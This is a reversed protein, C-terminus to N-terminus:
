VFQELLDATAPMNNKRLIRARAIPPASLLEGAVEPNLKGGPRLDYVDKAIDNIEKQIDDMEARKEAPTMTDDLQIQRQEKKLDTVQQSAKKFDDAVDLLQPYKDELEKVRADGEDSEANEAKKISAQVKAAEDALKYMEIIHRTNRAPGTRYFDRLGPIDQIAKEPAPPEGNAKRVLADSVTLVYDQINGIYGRGLHELQKPSRLAEPADDPMLQALERYTASTQPGFQDAPLVGQDGQTLIPSGTFTDQNIALEVMPWVTAPQPALNLTEGFSYGVLKAAQKVADPEDANTLMADGIAEPVTGFITGVEFPKPLKYHGDGIFFHWYNSKEQDTLAKYRDDDYNMALLAISAAAILMGRLGVSVFSQRTGRGLRYLGQLRANFFPTMGIILRVIEANGRMSFDMTDRAQYLANRRSLGAKMGKKFIAVRNANEAANQLMRYFRWVKVPTNLLIGRSKTKAISRRISGAMQSPDGSEVFSEGFGGGGAVMSKYEPSNALASALGALSDSPLMNIRTKDSQAGTVFTHWMDRWFNKVMFQPTMTITKTVVRKPFSFLKMWPGWLKPNINKLSRFLNPDHVHWFERKGGRWVTIIDEGAPPAIGLMKQLGAMAAPPMTAVNIGANQLAAAMNPNAKLLANLNQIPAGVAFKDPTVLGTGNLNDITMRGAVAQLSADMLAQWNRVINELPDGINQRGGKLQKIQNRIFGIGKGAKNSITVEGGQMIRHFPVYDSHEWMARTDPDIVGAEQAFDLVQRQLKNYQQRAVDFEPHQVGLQKAAAIEAPMFLNERGEAKLREARLASVYTLWLNVNGKLPKLIDLLGMGQGVDPAGDNWVPPGHEIISSVVEPAARSLRASVYGQDAEPVGAIEEAAQIGHLEDFLGMIAKEKLDHRFDNWRQRLSKPRVGIKSIFSDLDANGTPGQKFAFAIDPNSIDFTGKNGVASKVNTSRWTIYHSTRAPTMSWRDTNHDIVGDFGAHELVERIKDLSLNKAFLYDKIDNLLQPGPSSGYEAIDNMFEDAVDALGNQRLAINMEETREDGEHFITSIYRPDDTVAHRHAHGITFPNQMRMFVPMVSGENVHGLRRRATKTARDYAANRADLHAEDMSDDLDNAEKTLRIYEPDALANGGEADIRDYIEAAQDRLEERRYRADNRADDAQQLASQYPIEQTVQDFMQGVKSSVDNGDLSAYNESADQPNDTFYFGPGVYSETNAKGFQFEGFDGFTGHFLPKPDGKEDVVKSKGFWEKFARTNTQKKAQKVRFAVERRNFSQWMKRGFPTRVDAPAPKRGLRKSIAAYMRQAVGKGRYEPKVYVYTATWTDDTLDKHDLTVYGIRKGDAFANIEGQGHFDDNGAMINDFDPSFQFQEPNRADPEITPEKVGSLARGLADYDIDDQAAYEDPTLWQPADADQQKVAKAMDSQYEVEEARTKASKQKFFDRARYILAEIDEGSYSNLLGLGRLADRVKAVIRRWVSQQSLAGRHQLVKGAAYAVLEEAALSQLRRRTAPDPHNLDIANQKAAWKVKEPFSTRVQEMVRHYEKGLVGRLGMHGVAEHLANEYAEAETDLNERVYWIENNGTLNDQVFMGTVKGGDDPIAEQIYDPLDAQTDVINADVGLEAKVRAAVAQLREMPIGTTTKDTTRFAADERTQSEADQRSKRLADLRDAAKRLHRADEAAPAAKGAARPRAAIQRAGEAARAGYVTGALVASVEPDAFQGAFDPTANILEDSLEKNDVLERATALAGFSEAQEYLTKAWSWVTEQVEAPTWTEGTRETLIQAAERVRAAYALYGPRMGPNDGAANMEGKFLAQDVGAWNAMWADLTVRETEGRLNAAFSDVKPGSLTVASADEATLARVTNNIWAPLINSKGVKNTGPFLNDRMVFMIAKRTTPRGAKDWGVWVAVANRFNWEVSTQPSLAALLAAFRPADPGFVNSIAQASHRYWGRKAQGALASAALEAGAPLEDFVEILRKASAKKLRANEEPTLLGRVKEESTRRKMRAAVERREIGHKTAPYKQFIRAQGKLIGQAEPLHYGLYGADRVLEEFKNMDFRHGVPVTNGQADTTMGYPVQAQALFRQPDASGDYLDEKPIEVNYRTRGNSVDPEVEGNEAYLSTVKPGNRKAEAGKAGTGMKEPDLDFRDATQNSFHKFKLTDGPFASFEAPLLGIKQDAYRTEGAAAKRNAEGHPGYNVWSNQGRTETTMARRALPSYMGAHIRWANEEGDARFGNAEAVHGFVDHVIRFVDNNKLKHGDITEGADELMPNDKSYQDGSGFGSDTPFVWLHNNKRVDEIAMRPSKAYPDKQGPKIFEVKLGTKKIQDWQAKTEDIMARYARKVTPNNPEHKMEEFAKAIRKARPVDVKAYETQEPTTIGKAARYAAAANKASEVPEVKVKGEGPIEATEPMGKLRFAVEKGSGSNLGTRARRARDAAVRFAERMQPNQITEGGAAAHAADSAELETTRGAITEPTVAKDAAVKARAAELEKRPRQAREARQAERGMAIERREAPLTLKQKPKLQKQGAPPPGPPTNPNTPKAPKAVDDTVEARKAAAARQRRGEPTLVVVGRPNVKALGNSILDNAAAEDLEQADAVAQLAADREPSVNGAAAPKGAKATIGEAEAQKMAEAVAAQDKEEIQGAHLLERTYNVVAQKRADRLETLAAYDMKVKPDRAAAEGRELAQTARAYAAAAEDLASPAALPGEGLLPTGTPVDPDDTPKTPAAGTKEKAGKHLVSGVGGGVVTGLVGGTIAGELVGEWTGKGTIRQEAVNQITQEAGEQVFEQAGEGAAGQAGTLLKQGLTKAEGRGLKATLRGFFANMPAGTLGVVTGAAIAVSAAKDSAIKDRAQEHSFGKDRLEVYGPYNMLTHEDLSEITARTEAADGGGGIAGETLGGAIVASRTAAAMAQKEAAKIAVSQPIKQAALEELVQRYKAAYSLRASMGTVGMGPAAQVGVDIVNATWWWPDTAGEGVKLDGTDEDHEVLSLELARRAKPTLAAVAENEKQKTWARTAQIPKSTLVPEFLTDTTRRAAAGAPTKFAESAADAEEKPAGSVRAVGSLASGVTGVPDSAAAVAAGPLETLGEGLRAVSRKTLNGVNKVAGPVGQETDYEHEAQAQEDPTAFGFVRKLNTGLSQTPEAPPAEAVPTDAAPPGDVWSMDHGAARLKSVLDAKSMGEPVNRVIEGNPLRVDM